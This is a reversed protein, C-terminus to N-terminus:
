IVMYVVYQSPSTIHKRPCHIRNYQIDVFLDVANQEFSARFQGRKTDNYQVYQSLHLPGCQFQIFLTWLQRHLFYTNLKMKIGIEKAINKRRHSARISFKRGVYGLANHNVLEISIKFVIKQTCQCLCLSLTAIVDVNKNRHYCITRWGVCACWQSWMCKTACVCLLVSLLTMWICYYDTRM